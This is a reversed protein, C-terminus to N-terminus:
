ELEVVVVVVAIVYQPVVVREFKVEGGFEVVVVGVGWITVIKLVSVVMIWVVVEVLFDGEGDRYMVVLEDDILLAEQINLLDKTTAVPIRPKQKTNFKFMHSQHHIHPHTLSM